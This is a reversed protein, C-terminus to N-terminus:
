SIVFMETLSQLGDNDIIRTHTGVDTFGCVTLVAHIDVNLIPAEAV